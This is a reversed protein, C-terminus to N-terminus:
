EEEEPSEGTNFIEQLHRSLVALSAAMNENQVMIHEPVILHVPAFNWIALVGAEVLMDCAQQAAEAPVTIIGIRVNLRRTLDVLKFFPFVPKGHIDQDVIREDVDFAAIIELGYNDFGRYSLLARGLHGAGVLVAENVNKYGLFHEIDTILEGVHYGTKPRGGSSSIAALDKRVQVENLNLAKAITPASINQEAADPISKLYNLYFPIRRLAQKSVAGSDHPM